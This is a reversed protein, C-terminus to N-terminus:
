PVFLVVDVYDVSWPGVEAFGCGHGGTLDTEVVRFFNTGEGGGEKGRRIVWGEGWGLGVWGLWM